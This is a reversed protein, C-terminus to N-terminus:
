KGRAKLMEYYKVGKDDIGREVFDAFVGPVIEQVEGLLEGIVRRIEWHAPKTTRLAFIHRWERFNASVVEESETGIPLYQRADEPSWGQGRLSRYFREEMDAMQRPSLVLGDGLDVGIDLDRGPPPVFGVEGEKDYDVYRTSRESIATLRHRNQERTMGISIDTFRVTMLSHEIPTEHGRGLLMRVFKEATETTVEGKESRYCTRGAREIGLLQDRLVSKPTLIEFCPNEIMRMRIKIGFGKEGVLDM